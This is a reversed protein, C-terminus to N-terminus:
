SKSGIFKKPLLYAKNQERLADIEGEIESHRELFEKSINGVFGLKEKLSYIEANVAERELAFKVYTDGGFVLDVALLTSSEGISM